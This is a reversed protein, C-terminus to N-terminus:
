IRTRTIATIKNGTYTFNEQIRYLEVGSADYQIDIAQTVKNGTYTVQTERIKTVKSPSDWTTVNQVKSGTYLVEDWSTEVLWHTLSDLNEHQPETIGSGAALLDTLTKTGAVVGDKFTMNNSADRSIFVSTDRSTDNQVYYGRAELADQNVDAPEQAFEVDDAPTGGTASSEQKVPVVKDIAM